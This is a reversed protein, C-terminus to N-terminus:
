CWSFFPLSLFNSFPHWLPFLKIRLLLCPVWTGDWTRGAEGGFGCGKLWGLLCLGWSSGLVLCLGWATTERECEVISCDQHCVACFLKSRWVAWPPFFLRGCCHQPHQVSPASYRGGACVCVCAHLCPLQVLYSFCMKTLAPDGYWGSILLWWTVRPTLFYSTIVACVCTTCVKGLASFPMRAFSTECAWGM